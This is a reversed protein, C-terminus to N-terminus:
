IASGSRGECTKIAPASLGNDVFYKLLTSRLLLSIFIFRLAALSRHNEGNCIITIAYVSHRRAAREYEAMLLVYVYLNIIPSFQISSTEFFHGGYEFSIPSLITGTM